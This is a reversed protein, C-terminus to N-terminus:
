TLWLGLLGVMVTGDWGMAEEGMGDHGMARRGLGVRLM